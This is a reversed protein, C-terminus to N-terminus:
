ARSQNRHLWRPIPHYNQATQTAPTRSAVNFSKKILPGRCELVESGAKISAKENVRAVSCRILSVFAVPSDPNSVLYNVHETAKIIGSARLADTLRDRMGKFPIDEFTSERVAKAQTFGKSFGLVFIEPEGRGWYCPDNQIRWKGLRLEGAETQSFCVRCSLKGHLAKM